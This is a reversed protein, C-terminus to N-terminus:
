IHILSLDCITFANALAFQFPIEQEKYYGMSYDTKYKPWASIRGHDWAQQSDKWQHHTGAVRQANNKDGNLHFPTLIRNNSRLQEWVTKNDQMPITFRDAFGRVGKLTGFYHDFSRNEQMLIIVHEVDQITGTRNNASIALAKQISAPFSALAATGLATKLSSSLFERRNIEPM